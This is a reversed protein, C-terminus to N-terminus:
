LRQGSNYLEVLKAFTTEKMDGARVLSKVIDRPTFADQGRMAESMFFKLKSISLMAWEVQTHEFEKPKASWESPTIKEERILKKAANLARNLGMAEDLINKVAEKRAKLHPKEVKEPADPHEKMLDNFFKKAEKLGEYSQISAELSKLAEAIEKQKKIEFTSM